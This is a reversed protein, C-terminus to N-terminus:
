KKEAMFRNPMFMYMAIGFAKAISKSEEINKYEELYM